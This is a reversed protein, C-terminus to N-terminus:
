AADALRKFSPNQELLESWSGIGMIRGQDLVIIRDCNRVTSLRHAIMLITKHGPVAEIAAMVDRETLNDLASTAEDFVILDAGQYLARAIGIRQRQGGSLRIGREGIMTDYGHELDRQVFPDLQAIRAASEVRARDIDRPHVGFAINEAVTADVLFIEQPVYALSQQWRRRNSDDIEIGDALLRGDSPVLLGLIIDAVTTKGAGTGGVIGIREGARITLSMESLSAKHANPYKYAIGELCLSSKLGLPDPTTKPFAPAARAADIDAYLTEMAARGFKMRGLSAYLKALEPMMRQASFAIVGILPLFERLASDGTEFAVPDILFICLVVLGGFALIQIFYKPVQSIVNSSLQTKVTTFAATDFRRLYTDEHGHLKVEKIGALVEKATRFRRQNAKLRRRGLGTLHGRVIAFLIGYIGGFAVFASLAVAPNVWILLAVIALITLFSATIEAVPRFFTNVVQQVESLIRTSMDGTNRDLFFEYPQSLYLGLLKRSLSHVRMLCYRSIVYFRVLQMVNFVVIVALTAFGLAIVFGYNSEFGFTEYFWNLQPITRISSTDALVTLFPLVSGVMLATGLASISVVILVVGANRRERSDLLSWAKKLASTDIM